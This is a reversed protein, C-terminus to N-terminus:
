GDQRPIHLVDVLCCLCVFMLGNCQMLILSFVRKRLLINLRLRINNEVGISGIKM